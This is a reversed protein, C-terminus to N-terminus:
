ARDPSRGALDRGLIDRVSRRDVKGNANQPLVGGLHWVRPRKAAVLRKRVHLEVADKDFGDEPAEIWAAVREGWEEDDLGVVCADLVGPHSRLVEEVEMADITVGGSVIRDIRRGTIWLDGEGDIHGLDGTHYWGQTDHLMAGEESVYGIARTQGRVSLEGDNGIQMEVGVLPCGVTGPKAATQSPTATAIQSTMETAGYTLALPWGSRIARAVLGEPAHAGGILACRFTQPPGFGGRYDLLRLLQTPVLSMHTLPADAGPPLGRGDLLDSIRDPRFPGAVVLTGGLLLSRVVLALGGVHAMSLSALWVDDRGLALRDAAARASESLNEFSLAVGRPSGSTGSTWLIVQTQEPVSAQTLRDRATHLEFESLNPNLPVPIVGATWLALLEIVGTADPHALFPVLRGPEMEGLARSRAGVDLSLEAYSWARDDSVLAVDGPEGRSETLVDVVMM